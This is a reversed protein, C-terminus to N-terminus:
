SRRRKTPPEADRSDENDSAVPSLAEVPEDEDEAEDIEPNDKLMEEIVPARIRFDRATGMPLYQMLNVKTNASLLAVQRGFREAEFVVRPIQKTDRAKKSSAELFTVLNDVASSLKKGCLKLLREVSRINSDLTVPTLQRVLTALLTYLRSLSSLVRSSGVGVTCRLTCASRSWSTLQCLLLIVASYVEQLEFSLSGKFLGHTYMIGQEAPLAAALDRARQLLLEAGSGLRTLHACVHPLVTHGTRCEISPFNPSEEGGASTDEEDIRDLVSALKDLMEDLLLAEQKIRAGATLLPPILSLCNQRDTARGAIAGGATDESRGDTATSHTVPLETQRDSVDIRGLASALKDLLEDLLPAEQQIRAGATLLPPILSLCDQKSTRVYEELKLLAATYRECAVLPTELLVAALQCCASVLKKNVSDGEEASEEEVQSLATHVHELIAAIYSSEQEESIETITSLFSDTKFAHDPSLIFTLCDTFLEVCGLATTDDFECMDRFRCVCRKYMITAIHAILKVGQKDALEVVSRVCRLSWHHFERSSRIRNRQELTCWPVEESYLLEMVRLCIKLDWVCPLTKFPAGRDKTLNSVKVPRNDKDNQSKQSKQSKVTERTENLTSKSGKKGLKPTAKTNDLLQTYGKFLNLVTATTKPSNRDWKMVQYAVLAEYSSLIQQFKFTKAQSEPTLDSLGVDDVEIHAFRESDCIKTLDLALKSRLAASGNDAQSALIDELEEEEEQLFQATVYLLHSIPEVLVATAENIQVCKDWLVREEELYKTLHENLFDLVCEHLGPKDKVCEYLKTYLLQKVAADQVLCRRLISVVELCVSENRVSSAAPAGAQSSHVITLQTLYSAHSDDSYTSQSSSFTRSVKVHRLVTLFGSLALRRHASDRSNIGKRCVMFLCDRTRASFNILPHVAELVLACSKFDASPKCNELIASLQSCREVSVPTLKCLVFLCDAYQRQPSDTNLRDALTALIHPATEPQAKSLRALILKALSWCSAAHPKGRATSLLSFALSILGLVTLQRHSASETTLARLVAAAAAARPLVARAGACRRRVACEWERSLIICYLHVTYTYRETTLARLVAAARPLVARAGACRRRVACEWPAAGRVGVGPIIYYLIPTGKLLSRGCCPPPPPPARCCPAHARAGAGCRASGSGPYYLVTYTYRETTLARLVAAARPLVARAGACRRRVACEWPAAGRVGVGPIIYYLIPTGKLLSRGCCPPPARCCPAHARAGAGCRASGSGPYYLVTYTYRETTLARLVAAAAAARPLVARAGACRRRVACEWPAAGRVGVGPIIYYLIPTGKLLSRGCCPPPARCCPAHARAGAGCRASGSGPYYLVTYTYRETTLARLVAAAAAARPLVARAGACRRRVACEWTYTYRETTLARLVAAAAAARPLVARAGACRRRVACEWPAAGRVGVGPIIYYLIPTGKLLSRGCCPPPPPPARCCPAHARAGAGCRASGSGPYYLVTYTYRETTLARLVAAARPLVARAGACRRRVACEWPAAGRVGVGPIIYYLIPTGKLLSRGCCPPPPPPARCCPAHARAGAGCRASGSGPYYLVTYTYRETTLARLVAAAAAARPLVARAGACRRRVACESPAAGRVGVGPIIYYLIPTGKLLSRGCCPPPPPPARCCPAHARAGAGCRASGSGPYYLVTYTYRETTLARLVAAARPLVARAGACRRRVACEWTYTYRETTLARLVAAAAAARPLVARAGACRRRVACEWPAAGRVGVRPIIYYLIPTGKLLSRGCCPPPPPPARCCPAHARAGAGCRASGSGPYYLVTYTYRETTLARLVAAAAAARPLVARAGACRRRVACEWTYTYRETTLARLVAAARPLVARAGACRRRVACEWPAAGRVGVGPIIYYLIPTGKLLSRGCCPPPPPPARCCPAHARAGAGCRASGSGPYYLVTYTYRETTLARLVAAAAAARPLVARAGACRRRVACEWPAAGRVGVGPIIYYLIPTGKLLSRGCCPPPPPPARCCPAHARAGAGCRASGSGPYYLVTYTYRETTLARLVAAAAAARPLVARAGACRRRVACEWPAAGRVGVGPIIYYLIPTGKLLSRGCCPPPPPPARCCPAHARAGAGCRASGSGPYYLVTYTYRETTLARLVAAAAAARPLVARAGACRRRVACESELSLIGAKMVDLCLARCDSEACLALALDLLFPARLLQSRPWGRLVKCLQPKDTGEMIHYICTSLCRSVEAPSHPVIDEIDMTTAESDPTPPALKSYLQASFYHGLHSLVIDFDQTKCLKILQHVLAPLTDPPCDMIYTCIKNVVQKHENRPLQMDNFMATLQVLQREKWGCQCLTRICQERYETATMDTGCHKVTDSASFTNLCEPLIDRWIMNVDSDDVISQVTDNCWQILESVPTKALELGIRSILDGCHTLSTSEKRLTKIVIDIVKIKSRYSPTNDLFGNFLCDIIKCGDSNLIRRPLYKLIQDINQNCLERLEARKTNTYGLEKLKSFLENVEM